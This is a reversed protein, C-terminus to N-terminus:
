LFSCVIHGRVLKAINQGATDNEPEVAVSLSTSHLSDNDITASATLIFRADNKYWPPPNNPAPHPPFSVKLGAGQLVIAADEFLCGVPIYKEFFKQNLEKVLIIPKVEMMEKYTQNIEIRLRKGRQELDNGMTQDGENTNAFVRSSLSIMSVAGFFGLKLLWRRRDHFSLKVCMAKLYALLKSNAM